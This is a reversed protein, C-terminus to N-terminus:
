ISVSSLLRAREPEFIVFDKMKSQVRNDLESLLRTLTTRDKSMLPAAFSHLAILGSFNGSCFFHFVVNLMVKIHLLVNEGLRM